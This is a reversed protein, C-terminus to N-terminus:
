RHRLLPAPTKVSTVRAAPMVGSPGLSLKLLKVALKASM